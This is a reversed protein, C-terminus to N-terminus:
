DNYQGRRTSSSAQALRNSAFRLFQHAVPHEAAREAHYALYFPRTVTLGKISLPSSHHLERRFLLERSVFGAGLGSEVGDIIASGTDVQLVIRGPRPWGLNDLTSWVVEQTGSGSHRVVFPLNTLVNWDVPRQSSPFPPHHPVLLVIEDEAVPLSIVDPHSSSMGMFGIDARGEAVCQEVAQSNMEGLEVRVGPHAAIFEAMWRTVLRSAPSSSTALTLRGIVSHTQDRTFLLARYRKLVDDSFDLFLFGFPTLRLPLVDREVLLGGLEEEMAKLRRSATPQSVSVARAAETVSQREALAWFLELDQFTM